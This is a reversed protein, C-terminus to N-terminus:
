LIIICKNIKVVNIENNFEVMYLKKLKLLICEDCKGFLILIDSSTIYETLINNYKTDKLKYIGQTPIVMKNILQNFSLHTVKLTKKKLICKCNVNYHKIYMGNILLNNIYKYLIKNNNEIQIKYQIDNYEVNNFISKEKYIDDNKIIIADILNDQSEYFNDLVELVDNPIKCSKYIFENNNKIITFYQNGINHMFTDFRATKINIICEEIQNLKTNRRFSEFSMNGTIVYTNHTNNLIDGYGIKNSLVVSMIRNTIIRSAFNNDLELKIGCYQCLTKSKNFSIEGIIPTNCPWFRQKTVNGDFLPYIKNKILKISDKQNYWKFRYRYKIQCISNCFWSTKEVGFIAMIKTIMYSYDNKWKEINKYIKKGYNYNIWRTNCFIVDSINSILSACASFENIGHISTVDLKSYKIINESNKHAEDINNKIWIFTEKHKNNINCNNILENCLLIIEDCMKFWSSIDVNLDPIYIINRMCVNQINVDIVNNDIFEWEDSIYSEINISSGFTYVCSILSSINSSLSTESKSIRININEINSRGGIAINGITNLNKEKNNKYEQFIRVWKIIENKKSILKKIIFEFIDNFDEIEIFDFRLQKSLITAEEYTVERNIESQTDYGIILIPIYEVPLQLLDCIKDLFYEIKKFTEQNKISYIILFNNGSKIYTDYANRYTDDIVLFNVIYILNDIIIEEDFEHKKINKLLEQFNLEKHGLLVISIKKKIEKTVSM